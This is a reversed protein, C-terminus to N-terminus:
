RKTLTFYYIYGFDDTHIELSFDTLTQHLLRNVEDKTRPVFKWDCFWDPSLAPFTKEQSKHTFIFKGGKRLLEYFFELLGKFSDDSLYDMLGLSYILDQQSLIDFGGENGNVEMLNEKLFQAIINEPFNNFLNMSYDLAQEDSDIGTFTLLNKTNIEAILETMERCSGCALSLIKLSPKQANSIIFERLMGKLKDKRSKIAVAYSNELFYRDYYEGISKSHTIGTYISEMMMYDGSCVSSKEFAQRLISGKFVWTGVLFRFNEKVRKMIAKDSLLLNLSYGKLLIQTNLHELEKQAERSYKHEESLKSTFKIVNSIYDILSELFFYSIDNRVDEEKIDSLLGQIQTKILERRLALQDKEQLDVFEIGYLSGGTNLNREWILKANTNLEFKGEPFFVQLSVSPNTITELSNFSMGMESFDALKVTNKLVDAKLDTKVRPYSRKENVIKSMLLRKKKLLM